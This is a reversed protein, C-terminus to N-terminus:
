DLDLKQKLSFAANKKTTPLVRFMFASHPCLTSSNINSCITRITVVTRPFHAFAHSQAPLKNKQIRTHIPNLPNPTPALTTGQM